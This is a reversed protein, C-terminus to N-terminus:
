TRKYEMEISVSDAFRLAHPKDIEVTAELVKDATAIVSIIDAAMKELLGFSREEVLAIIKKTLVKYNCADDVSDSVMAISADYRILINVIIDQKKIKEEENFGIYTRLRLNKIHINAM